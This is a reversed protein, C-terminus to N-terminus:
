RSQHDDSRTFYGFWNRSQRTTSRRLHFSASSAANWKIQLNPDAFCPKPANKTGCRKLIVLFHWSADGVLEFFSVTCFIFRSKCNWLFHHCLLPRQHTQQLHHRLPWMKAKPQRLEHGGRIRGYLLWLSKFYFRYWACTFISYNQYKTFVDHICCYQCILTPLLRLDLGVLAWCSRFTAKFFGDHPACMSFAISTNSANRLNPHECWKPSICTYVSISTGFLDAPFQNILKCEPVLDSSQIAWFNHSLGLDTFVQM